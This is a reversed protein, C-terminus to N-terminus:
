MEDKSLIVLITDTAGISALQSEYAENLQQSDIFNGWKEHGGPKNKSLWYLHNSLPYRQIHKVFDVKLSAKKALLTITRQNYLYLHCSWYTFKSFAESEYISLLADKANPVEVIIKGGDKLLDKMTELTVEPERLHELVHFATIYDFKEEIKDLNDYLTLSKKAYFPVVAKELEVTAVNSSIEKAMLAFGGNGSGFDLVSKNTIMPKVFEFRREDDEKTQNQWRNFDVEKHMNSEEYFNEDIHKTSSLYVLSCESCELIKIEKADRVQGKKYKFDKSGCLKCSM